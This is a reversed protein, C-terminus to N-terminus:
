TRTDRPSMRHTNCGADCEHHYDKEAHLDLEDHYAM